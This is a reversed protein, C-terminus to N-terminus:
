RARSDSLIKERFHWSWWLATVSFAATIINLSLEIVGGTGAGYIGHQVDYLVDMCLLYTGAGGAAVLWMLASGVRRWLQVAAMFVCFLLWGDALRFAGEFESYSSTSASAILSRDTWWLVWYAVLLCGAVM